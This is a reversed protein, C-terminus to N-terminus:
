EKLPKIGSISFCTGRGVTSNVSIEFGLKDCLRKVISLGLGTGFANRKHKKESHYYKDWIYKIEEPEMGKGTDKIEVICKKKEKKLSITVTKDDGTYNVANNLLNYIVQEIRKKDAKVM